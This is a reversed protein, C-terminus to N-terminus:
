VVGGYTEIGDEDCYWVVASDGGNMEGVRVEAWRSDGAEVARLLDNLMSQAPKTDLLEIDLEDNSNQIVVIHVSM